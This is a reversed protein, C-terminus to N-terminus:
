QAQGNSNEEWETMALDYVKGPVFFEFLEENTITMGLTGNPTATSYNNDAPHGTWIPRLQVERGYTTHLVSECHFRAKCIM